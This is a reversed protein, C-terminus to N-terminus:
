VYAGEEEEKENEGRGSEEKRRVEQVDGGETRLSLFEKLTAPTQSCEPFPPCGCGSQPRRGTEYRYGPSPCGM